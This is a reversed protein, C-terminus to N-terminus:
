KSFDISSENQNLFRNFKENQNLSQDFNENLKFFRDFKRNSEFDISNLNLFDILNELRNLCRDFKRISYFLEPGAVM